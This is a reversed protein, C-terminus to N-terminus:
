KKKSIYINFIDCLCYYISECTKKEILKNMDEIFYYNEIIYRNNLYNIYMNRYLNYKDNIKINNYLNNNKYKYLEINKLMIVCNNPIIKNFKM